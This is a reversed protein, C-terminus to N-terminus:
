AYVGAKILAAIGEGAVRRWDEAGPTRGSNALYWPESLRLMGLHLSVTLPILDVEDPAAAVAPGARTQVQAQGDDFIWWGSALMVWGRESQAQRAEMEVVWVLNSKHSVFATVGPPTEGEEVPELEELSTLELVAGELHDAPVLVGYDGSFRLAWRLGERDGFEQVLARLVDRTFSRVAPSHHLTLHLLNDHGVHPALSTVFARQAAADPAGAYHLEVLRLLVGANALLAQGLSGPIAAAAVLDEVTFNAHAVIRPPVFATIRPPAPQALLRAIEARSTEPDEFAKLPAPLDLGPTSSFKAL